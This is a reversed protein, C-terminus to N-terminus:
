YDVVTKQFKSPSSLLSKTTVQSCSLAPIHPRIRQANWDRDVYCTRSPPIKDSCSHVTFGWKLLWM